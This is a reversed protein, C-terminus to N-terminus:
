SETRSQKNPDVDTDKTSSSMLDLEDISWIVAISRVEGRRM